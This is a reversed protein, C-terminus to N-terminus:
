KGVCSGTQRPGNLRMDDAGQNMRSIGSYAYNRRCKRSLRLGVKKARRQLNHVLRSKMNPSCLGFIHDSPTTKRSMGIALREHPVNETSAMRSPTEHHVQMKDSPSHELPCSASGVACAAAMEPSCSQFCLLFLEWLPHDTFNDRPAMAEPISGQSFGVSFM